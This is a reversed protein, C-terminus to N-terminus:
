YFGIILIDKKPNKFENGCLEYQKCKTIKNIKKYKM